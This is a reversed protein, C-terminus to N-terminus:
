PADTGAAGPPGLDGGTLEIYEEGTLLRKGGTRERIKRAILKKRLRGRADFLEPHRERLEQELRVIVEDLEADAADIAAQRSAADAATEALLNATNLDDPTSQAARRAAYGSHQIRDLDQDSTDRMVLLVSGSPLEAPSAARRNGSRDLIVVRADAGNPQEDAVLVEGHQPEGDTEWFLTGRLRV